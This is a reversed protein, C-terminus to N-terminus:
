PARLHMPYSSSFIGSVPPHGLTCEPYRAVLREFQAQARANAAHMDFGPVTGDTVVTRGGVVVHRVDRGLAGILLTQIPDIVQGIRDNSFDFVVIDAMAGPMLRGLDTRGLANAGGITAADFLDEARVAGADGEMVRGLMLGLQMNLIMDPPWTDTGMGIRLGRRRYSAFSDLARGGRPSWHATCSRPAPRPLSRWTAVQGTSEAHALSGHLM